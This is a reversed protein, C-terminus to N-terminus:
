RHVIMVIMDLRFFILKRTLFSPTSSLRRVNPRWTTRIEEDLIKGDAKNSKRWFGEFAGEFRGSLGMGETDQPPALFKSQKFVELAKELGPIENRMESMEQMALTPARCAATAQSIYQDMSSFDSAIPSLWFELVGLIEPLYKPNFHFWDPANSTNIWPTELRNVTYRPDFLPNNSASSTSSSPKPKRGQARAQARAAAAAGASMKKPSPAPKPAVHTPLSNTSIPKMEPTGVGSSSEEESLSEESVPPPSIRERTRRIFAMLMDYLKAPM